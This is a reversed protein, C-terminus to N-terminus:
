DGRGQCVLVQEALRGQGEVTEQGDLDKTHTGGHHQDLEPPPGRHQHRHQQARQARNRERQAAERGPRDGAQTGSSLPLFDEGGSSDEYPELEHGVRNPPAQSQGHDRAQLQIARPQLFRPRQDDAAPDQEEVHRHQHRDAHVGPGAPLQDSRHPSLHLLGFPLLLQPDGLSLGGFALADGPLHVIHQGVPDRQNAHVGPRQGVPIVEAGLLGAPDGLGDPLVRGQRQGLQPADEPRQTSLVPVPRM